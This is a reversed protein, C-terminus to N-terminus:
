NDREESLAEILIEILERETELVYALGLVPGVV